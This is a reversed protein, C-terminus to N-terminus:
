QRITNTAMVIGINECTFSLFSINLARPSSIIKLSPLATQDSIMRTIEFDFLRAALTRNSTLLIFESLFQVVRLEIVM